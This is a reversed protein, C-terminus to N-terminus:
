HIINSINEDGSTEFFDNFYDFDSIDDGDIELNNFFFKYDNLSEVHHDNDLKINKKYEPTKTEVKPVLDFAESKEDYKEKASLQKPIIPRMNNIIQYIDKKSLDFDENANLYFTTCLLTISHLHNKIKRRGM